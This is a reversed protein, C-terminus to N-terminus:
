HALMQRYKANWWCVLEPHKAIEIWEMNEDAQPDGGFVIPKIYWKIKGSLREDPKLSVANPLEDYPEMYEHLMPVTPVRFLSGAKDRVIFDDWDLIAVLGYGPLYDEIRYVTSAKRAEDKEFLILYGDTGWGEKM